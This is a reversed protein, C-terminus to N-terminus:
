RSVWRAPGGGRSSPDLGRIQPAQRLFERMWADYGGLTANYDGLNATLPNSATYNGYGTAYRNVQQNMWRAFPSSDDKVGLSAKYRAFATPINQELINQGVPALGGYDSISGSGAWNWVNTNSNGPNGYGVGGVGVGV